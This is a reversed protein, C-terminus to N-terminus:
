FKRLKRRKRTSSLRKRKINKKISKRKRKRIKGGSVNSLDLSM